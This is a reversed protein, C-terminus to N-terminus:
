LSDSILSEIDLTASKMNTSATEAQYVATNLIKVLEELVQYDFTEDETIIEICFVKSSSGSKFALLSKSSDTTVEVSLVKSGSITKEIPDSSEYGSKIISAKLKSKNEIIRSYSAPEITIKSAWTEDSNFITISSSTSDFIYKEPVTLTFEDVKVKVGSVVVEAVKDTETKDTKSLLGPVIMAAAAVLILTFVGVLILPLKSSKPTNTPYAFSPTVPTVPSTPTVPTEQIPQVPTVLNSNTFVPDIVPAAVPAVPSVPTVPTTMPQTPAINLQGCATCFKDNDNLQASCKSCIM